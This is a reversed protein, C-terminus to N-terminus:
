PGPRRISVRGPRRGSGLSYTLNLTTAGSESAFPSLDLHLTQGVDVSQAPIPSLILSGVVRNFVDITETASASSYDTTDDPTFSVSLAQGRGAKLVTGLTPSYTFTGPVNATADLQAASLPTGYVISAPGAWTITPTAQVVNIVTTATADTYDATDDPTFNVSLQQGSGAKLIAGIAPSYTFTGPVSATADLQDASLPTGYAIAAPAAWTITPTAKAIAQDCRHRDDRHATYDTTDDPTFTASLQQGSGANLVTGLTPSYTFTGPVSATADLQTASLATGYTIAAPAAWTITPTAKASPSPSTATATNYDTTDTPTFTVSLTGSGANPVTGAAPSYTFTGPVSATADLQTSVPRHRLHHGGPAAWTITPTAKPPSCMSPPRPLAGIYDTTDTPRSPSPSRRVNRPGPRHRRAALLRLLRPRQRHRRAPHVVPAHRYTIATPAAWTITPTAKASDIATSAAAGHLRHHRDPTFTVSLQHGSGADPHHWRRPTLSPAPCAPPPTSSPPASLPTGYTIGAPGAWTITPTIKSSSQWMWWTAGPATFGVATGILAFDAPPTAAGTNLTTTAIVTGAATGDSQWVQYGNNTTYAAFYLTGGVDILNTPESTTAGNIDALMSTGGATGNSSWLQSGHAGDTGAFFLTSGVATLSTPNVGGGAVNLGTLM